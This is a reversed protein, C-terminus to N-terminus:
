RAPPTERSVSNSASSQALLPADGPVGLKSRVAHRAAADPRFEDIDIGNPVVEVRRPRYGLAVHSKLGATSNATV